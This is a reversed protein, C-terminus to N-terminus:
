GIYIYYPAQSLEKQKYDAEAARRELLKERSTEKL